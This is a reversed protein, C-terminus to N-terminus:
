DQLQGGMSDHSPSASMSMICMAESPLPLLRASREVFSGTKQKLEEVSKKLEPNSCPVM